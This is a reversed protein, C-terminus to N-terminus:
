KKEQGTCGRFAEVGVRRVWAPLHVTHICPLDSFAYEEVADDDRFALALRSQREQPPTHLAGAFLSSRCPMSAAKALEAAGFIAPVKWASEVHQRVELETYTGDCAEGIQIDSFGQTGCLYPAFHTVAETAPAFDRGTARM